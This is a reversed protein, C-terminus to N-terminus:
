LLVSTDQSVLCEEKNLMLERSRKNQEVQEACEETGRHEITRNMYEADFRREKANNKHEDPEM